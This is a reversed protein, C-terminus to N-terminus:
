SVRASTRRAATTVAPPSPVSRTNMVSAALLMRCAQTSSSIRCDYRNAPKGRASFAARSHRRAAPGRGAPVSWASSRQRSAPSQVTRPSAVQRDTYPAAYARNRRFM